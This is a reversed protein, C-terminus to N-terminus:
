GQPNNKVAEAPTAQPSASRPAPEARAILRQELERNQQRCDRLEKKLKKKPFISLLLALFFGLFFLTLALIYFPLPVTELNALMLNLHLSHPATLTSYNQVIFLLFLIFLFSYLIFKLNTMNGKIKM